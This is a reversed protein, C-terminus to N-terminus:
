EVARISRSPHYTKSKLEKELNLINEEANIEFKLANITNRKNKRCALYRRYINGFSFIDKVKFLWQGGRVPRM